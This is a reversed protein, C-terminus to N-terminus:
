VFGDFAGQDAQARSAGEVAAGSFIQPPVEAFLKDLFQIGDFKFELLLGPRWASEREDGPLARHWVQLM